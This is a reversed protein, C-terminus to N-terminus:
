SIIDQKMKKIEKLLKKIPAALGVNQPQQLDYWLQTNAEMVQWYNESCQATIPQIDLHFHSFTHRLSALLKINKLKHGFYKKRSSQLEALDSCEPFCWLGGWIGPAPRRELFVQYKNNTIILFNVTRVPLTKKPKPTPYLIQTNTKYAQCNKQLPCQACKPQSRTCVTAGLDMIAQTYDAANQQPTYNEALQWLQKKIQSQEPWGAVTHLRTLVRKVNGDLIPLSQNDSIALIAGATSRGIGPLAELQELTKPFKGRYQTTIIQATKHLNRARAYYGLGTWLHLVEDIPAQALKTVSPFTKMFRLFYPIVTVVQTQQLMIESIWVRYASITQRWPLEQRGQKQYWTLLAQSIQPSNNKSAM